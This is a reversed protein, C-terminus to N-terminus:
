KNFAGSKIADQWSKMYELDPEANRVDDLLMYLTNYAIKLENLQQMCKTQVKIAIDIQKLESM